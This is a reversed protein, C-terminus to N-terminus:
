FSAVSCQWELSGIIDASEGEFLFCRVPGADLNGRKKWEEYYNSQLKIQKINPQEHFAALVFVSSKGIFVFYKQSPFINTSTSFKGGKVGCAM